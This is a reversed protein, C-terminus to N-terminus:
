YLASPGSAHDLVSLRTKARETLLRCSGAAAQRYLIAASKWFGAAENLGALRYADLGDREAQCSELLVALALPYGNANIAPGAQAVRRFHLAARAYQGHLFFSTARWYTAVPEGHTGECARVALATARLSDEVWDRSGLRSSPLVLYRSVASRANGIAVLCGAANRADRGSDIGPPVAPPRSLLESVSVVDGGALRPPPLLSPVGVFPGSSASLIARGSGSAGSVADQSLDARPTVVSRHGKGRPETDGASGSVPVAACGTAMVFVSLLALFTVCRSSM